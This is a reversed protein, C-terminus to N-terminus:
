ELAPRKGPCRGLYAGIAVVLTLNVSMRLGIPAWQRCRRVTSPSPRRFIFWLTMWGAFRCIRPITFRTGCRTRMSSTASSAPLWSDHSESFQLGRFPADVRALAHPAADAAAVPFRRTAAVLALVRAVR